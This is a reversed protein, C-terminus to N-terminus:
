SDEIERHLFHDSFGVMIKERGFLLHSLKLFDMTYGIAISGAVCFVLSIILFIFGTPDYQLYPVLRKCLITFAPSFLLILLTNRGILLMLRLVIGDHIYQYVLLCTSMALYVILVGGSSAQNLNSPFCILWVLAPLAFVSPQFFRLFPLGEQRLVVGALFYMSCSFSLIGLLHAYMCFVLALLILRSLQRIRVYHFLVYYTVGCLLITHLYWYPGIPHFLIKDAFVLLSLKEIHENIPLISAMIIYITEVALYPVILYRLTHLFRSWKRDINMLYGSIVLFAPMHFTYVVQKAYPYLHEIYVLHFSVMLLILVGKLFDLEPIRM